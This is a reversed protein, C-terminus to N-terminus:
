RSLTAAPKMTRFDRLSPFASKIEANVVSVVMVPGQLLSLVIGELCLVFGDDINNAIIL